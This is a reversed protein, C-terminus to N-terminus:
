KFLLTLFALASTLNTIHFGKSCGLNRGGDTVALLTTVSPTGRTIIETNTPSTLFVAFFVRNEEQTLLFNFLPPCICFSTCILPSSSASRFRQTECEEHDQRDKNIGDFLDPHSNSM